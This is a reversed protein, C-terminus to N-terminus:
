NLNIRNFHLTNSILKFAIVLATILITFGLIWNIINSNEKLVHIMLNGFIGYGIFSFGTGAAISFFYITNASATNDLIHKNKLAVTWGMWFPLALPNLFSLVIGSIIPNVGFLPLVQDFNQGNIAMNFTKFSLVFMFVCIIGCIIKFLKEFQILKDLVKLSLKIMIVEMIIAATGFKLADEVRNQLTYNVIRASLTGIPLSGMFSIGFVVYFLKLNKLFSM